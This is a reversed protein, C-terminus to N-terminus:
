QGLLRKVLAEQESLSSPMRVPRHAARPREPVSDKQQVQQATCGDQDVVGASQQDASMGFYAGQAPAGQRADSSSSNGASTGSEGARGEEGSGGDDSSHALQVGESADASAAQLKAKRLAKAARRQERARETDKADAALLRARVAAIRESPGGDGLGHAKDPRAAAGSSDLMALPDMANGDADFLVKRGPAADKHIRLRKRKKGPRMSAQHLMRCM